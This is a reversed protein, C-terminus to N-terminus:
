EPPQTQHAHLAAKAGDPMLRAGATQLKNKLSGGVVKAEGSMLAEFGDRAVIEPDDKSGRDVPTDQMGAREFFHTDTPGPLLTTITVGTDKVEYRVAEAFSQIFAKSAAYTAYYPGPLTAAVSSTILIKGDGRAVMDPLVAKTLRVPCTVNLAIVQIDNELLSEVFPGSNGIGANIAIADVPRGTDQVAALLTDVGEETTLDAQVAKVPLGNEKSNRPLPM